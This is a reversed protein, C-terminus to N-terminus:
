LGVGFSWNMKEVVKLLSSYRKPLVSAPAHVLEIWYVRRKGLFSDKTTVTVLIPTSVSLRIRDKPGPNLESHRLELGDLANLSATDFVKQSM